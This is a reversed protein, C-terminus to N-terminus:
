TVGSYNRVLLILSYILYRVTYIICIVQWFCDYTQGNTHRNRGPLYYDSLYM